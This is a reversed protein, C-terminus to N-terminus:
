ALIAAICGLFDAASSIASAANAMTVTEDPDVGYDGIEKYRYAQTLFVTMDKPIRPDNKSLRAFM